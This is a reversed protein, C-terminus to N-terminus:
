EKKSPQFTLLEGDQDLIITHPKEKMAPIAYKILWEINEATQKAVKVIRKPDRLGSSSLVELTLTHQRKAYYRIAQHIDREDLIFIEEKGTKQNFKRRM